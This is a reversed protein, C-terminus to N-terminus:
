IIVCVDGSRCSISKGVQCRARYMSFPHSLAYLIQTTFPMSTMQRVLDRSFAAVSMDACQRRTSDRPDEFFLADMGLESTGLNWLARSSSTQPAPPPFLEIMRQWHIRVIADISVVYDAWPATQSVWELVYMLERARTRHNIMTPAILIDRHKKQEASIRHWQHQNVLLHWHRLEHWPSLVFVPQVCVPRRDKQVSNSISGIPTASPRYVGREKVSRADQFDTQRLKSRWSFQTSVSSVVVLIALLDPKQTKSNACRHLDLPITEPINAAAVITVMFQAIIHFPVFM